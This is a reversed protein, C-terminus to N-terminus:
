QKRFNCHSNNCRFSGACHALRRIGTFGLRKSSMYRKWKRGDISSQMRNCSDFPLYPRVFNAFKTYKQIVRPFFYGTRSFIICKKHCLKQLNFSTSFIILKQLNFFIVTHIFIHSLVHRIKTCFPENYRIHVYTSKM